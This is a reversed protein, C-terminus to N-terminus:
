NLYRTSIDIKKFDKLQQYKHLKHPTHIHMTVENFFFNNRCHNLTAKHWFFMGFFNYSNTNKTNRKHHLKWKRINSM